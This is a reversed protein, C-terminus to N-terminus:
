CNTLGNILQDFARVQNVPKPRQKFQNVRANERQKMELIIQREAYTPEKKPDIDFWPRGKEIWNRYVQQKQDESYM